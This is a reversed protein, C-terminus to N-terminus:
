KPEFVIGPLLDSTLQGRYVATTDSERTVGSDPVVHVISMSDPIQISARVLTRKQGSQKFVNLVYSAAPHLYSPMAIAHPVRYHTLTVSTEGPKTVIWNAFFTYGSEGGIVAGSPSGHQSLQWDAVDPDIKMPIDSPAIIPRPVDSQATFGKSELLIAGKPVLMRQYITNLKFAPDEGPPYPYDIKEDPGKHTRRVVVVVDADGQETITTRYDIEQEMFQDSKHGGINANDIMLFGPADKPLTGGWGLRDVEQQVKEDKFSLLLDKEALSKTFAELTALQKGSAGSAFLKTLLIPTLDSLFQKPKNVSKDYNYTVEGQTIENFNEASVTKGYGPVEIPGTVALLNKIVTPTMLVVGDVTPGGEKEFLQSAKQASKSFDVFWNSDRLYWRDVIPLLPNPPAFFEKLQGDGDYVSHVDINEVKGRSVNVLGITGIFGGVPRIEDNNAFLFLYQKDRDAGLLTLFTESESRLMSIANRARPISDQLKKIQEQLKSPLFIGSIGKIKEDAADLETQALALEPRSAIISDTLAGTQATDFFPKMARSIHEGAKALASGVFLMGQGARVTGTVDLVSLVQKSTSLAQDMEQQASSLETFAAQFSREGTATDVNALATQATTVDMFAHTVRQQLSAIIATGRGAGQLSWIGASIIGCGLLLFLVGHVSSRINWTSVSIPLSVQPSSSQPAFEYAMDRETFVPEPMKPIITKTHKKPAVLMPASKRKAKSLPAQRGAPLRSPTPTSRKENGYPPQSIRVKPAEGRITDGTHQEPKAHFFHHTPLSIGAPKQVPSKQINWIKPTRIKKREFHVVADKRVVPRRLRAPLKWDVRLPEKKKSPIVDLM